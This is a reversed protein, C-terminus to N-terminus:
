LTLIRTKRFSSGLRRLRVLGTKRFSGLGTSLRLRLILSKRFSCRLRRLRVLRTKRFSGLSTSLRLRLILAKRLSSRLRWWGPRFSARYFSGRLRRRGPSRFSGLRRWPFGSGGGGRLLM